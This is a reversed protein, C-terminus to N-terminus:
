KDIIYHANYTWNEGKYNNVNVTIIYETNKKLNTIMYYYANNEYEEPFDMIFGSFFGIDLGIVYTLRGDLKKSLKTTLYALNLGIISGLVTRHWDGRLKTVEQNVMPKLSISQNSDKEKYTTYLKIQSPYKDTSVRVIFLASDKTNPKIEYSIAQQEKIPLSNCNILSFLIIIIFTSTIYKYM